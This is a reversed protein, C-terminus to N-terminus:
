GVAASLMGLAVLSGGIISKTASGSPPTNHVSALGVICVGGVCILIGLWQYLYQKRKFVLFSFTGVFISRACVHM